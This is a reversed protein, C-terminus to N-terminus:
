EESPTEPQAATKAKTLMTRLVIIEQAQTAVLARFGALIEEVSLEEDDNNTM